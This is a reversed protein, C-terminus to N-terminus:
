GRQGSSRRLTRQPVAPEGAWKFLIDRLAARAEETGGGPVGEPVRDVTPRSFGRHLNFKNTQCNNM